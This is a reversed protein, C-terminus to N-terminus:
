EVVPDLRYVSFEPTQKTLTSCAKLHQALEHYYDLWWRTAWTFVLHTAGHHRLKELDVIAEASDQPDGIFIGASELFHWGKREAYYFATPDGNDVAIILSNAPTTLKLELGAERLAISARSQYLPRVQSSASFGFSVILLISVGIRWARATLKQGFFVCAAGAFAAAIPVLPLQYWQHRNGYGVVIVFLIMAALWCYFFRAEPRRRIIFAGLLALGFPVPTLSSSVVQRAIQWYWIPNMIRIGGAGFFHHPYFQRALYYAYGYWVLSPFLAIAAFLWLQLNRFASSKLRQLVVCGLPAAVVIGPAKILISLSVAIASLLLLRPTPQDVWRRFLYLGVIGLSLSPMDPIFERSAFLNVPAFSYFLLAWIAASKGLVDRVLLFFFPASVAFLIVTEGRGIGDHVGFFKYCLAAIFPLIPFETGVYGPQDGAWDIQPRSFHFGGTFYNRAIAAVDNQRWSWKDVYPQNIAILRAAIALTAMAIALAISRTM